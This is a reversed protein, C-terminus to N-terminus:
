YVIVMIMLNMERWFPVEKEIAKAWYRYHLYPQFPRIFFWLNSYACLREDQHLIFIM